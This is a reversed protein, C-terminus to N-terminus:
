RGVGVHQRDATRRPGFQGLGEVPNPILQRARPDADVDGIGFRDIRSQIASEHLQDIGVPVAVIGTFAGLRGTHSVIVIVHVM